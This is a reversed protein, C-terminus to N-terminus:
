FSVWKGIGVHPWTLEYSYSEHGWFGAADPPLGWAECTDTLVSKRNNEVIFRIPLKRGKAYIVTEHYIGSRATMDGVFCYVRGREQRRQMGWAIGMAIPAIGGVIASCIIKYQPFCLAISRGDHIAKRLEEPPVGKLLCHYHSRWACAVWDNENDISKFINILQQENGGALHVPAAIKGAEFDAAIDKEFAILEEATM